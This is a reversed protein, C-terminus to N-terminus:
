GSGVGNITVGPSLSPSPTNSRTSKSVSLLPHIDSSVKIDNYGEDIISICFHYNKKVVFLINSITEDIHALHCMVARNVIM